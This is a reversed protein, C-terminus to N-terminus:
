SDSVEALRRIPTKKGKSHGKIERRKGDQGAIM